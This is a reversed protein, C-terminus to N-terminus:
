AWASGLGLLVPLLMLGATFAGRLLGGETLRALHASATSPAVGAESALVSMPLARGHLLAAPDGVPGHTGGYSAKTESGSSVDEGIETSRRRAWPPPPWRPEDATPRGARRRHKVVVRCEHKGAVRHEVFPKGDCRQRCRRLDAYFKELREPADRMLLVLPLDGLVPRLHDRIMWEYNMRTTPDIEAQPLWQDLLAGFTSRTRAVKLSDAEHQLRTRVKEAEKLAARESRENGPREISVSETLVIREGTAPDKGASVRVQFSDRHRRIGGRQRGGGISGTTM